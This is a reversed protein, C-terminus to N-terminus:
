RTVDTDHTRTVDTDGTSVLEADITKLEEPFAHTYLANLVRLSSEDVIQRVEMSQMPRGETRDSIWAAAQVRTSEVKAYLAIRVMEEAIESAKGAQLVRRLAATISYSEPNAARGGPNGSQGSQWRAAILGPNVKPPSSDIAPM